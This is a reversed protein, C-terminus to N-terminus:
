RLVPHWMPESADEDRESQSRLLQSYDFELRPAPASEAGDLLQRGSQASLAEPSVGFLRAYMQIQKASAHSVTSQKMFQIPDRLLQNVISMTHKHILQVDRDTLDPLKRKLSEMVSAQIKEGKDRVAAILPVVAQEALWDSFTSLGDAIMLEVESTFAERQALNASVIGELDDIDYLYVGSLDAAQPDVDRPVAIDIIAVPRHNRRRMATAVTAQTLVYGDSGTSSIVIDSMALEDGIVDWTVPAAGFEAALQEAREFTRNAVRLERIGSARLHQATLKSMKGAGLVLVSRGSLDGFIKKALQVAAYSISVASQGIGTDTQARKGVQIALRFWQNLVSGTNGAEFAAQFANRVQGLIQTEGIVLSDLGTAVRFLHNVATDGVHCYVRGELEGATLRAQRHMWNFLYDQAARASSVLAYVETRNCTSLVVSELVSRSRRLAELAEPLLADSISVQERVEVPASQHSLGFAVLQM